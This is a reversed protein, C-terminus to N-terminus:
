RRVIRVLADDAGTTDFVFGPLPVGATAVFDGNADVFVPDGDVVSGGATVYIMGQTLIPVNANQAYTDATQGPLLVAAEHAITIGLFANGAVTIAFADGAVFDTAGDALTFALGGASFASAVVGDGIQIGDPDIVNFTGTNAGPEIITLTYRGPKAGATVTIAGMTGNGTNTGLAAASATLTQAALCGHDNAGRYVAKGFGIGAATEITRSIRNSTEGNAIMGAFGNAPFDNYVTQVEAM